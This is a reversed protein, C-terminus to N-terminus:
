SDLKGPHHGCYAAGDVGLELGIRDLLLAGRRGLLDFTAGTRSHGSDTARRASRFSLGLPLM